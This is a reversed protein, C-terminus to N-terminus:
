PSPPSSTKDLDRRFLSLPGKGVDGWRNGLEIAADRGRTTAASFHVSRCLSLPPVCHSIGHFKRRQRDREKSYHGRRYRLLRGVDDHAVRVGVCRHPRASQVTACAGRRPRRAASLAPKFPSFGVSCLNVSLYSVDGPTASRRKRRDRNFAVTYQGVRVMSCWKAFRFWRLRRDVVDGDAGTATGGGRSRCLRMAVAITSTMMAAPVTAQRNSWLSQVSAGFLGGSAEVSATRREDEFAESEESGSRRGLVFTDYTPLALQPSHWRATSSAHRM